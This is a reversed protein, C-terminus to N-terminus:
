SREHYLQNIIIKKIHSVLVAIRTPKKQEIQQKALLLPEIDKHYESNVQQLLDMHERLTM